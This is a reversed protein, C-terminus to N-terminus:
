GLDEVTATPMYTEDDCGLLRTFIRDVLLAVEEVELDEIGITAFKGPEWDVLDVDIGETAGCEELHDLPEQDSPYPAINVSDQLVQVSVEGFELTCCPMADDDDSTMVGTIAAVIADQQKQGM